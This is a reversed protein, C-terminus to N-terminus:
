KAIIYEGANSSNTARYKVQEWWYIYLYGRVVDNWCNLKRLAIKVDDTVVAEGINAVQQCKKREDKITETSQALTSVVRRTKTKSAWYSIMSLFQKSQVCKDTVIETFNKYSINKIEM